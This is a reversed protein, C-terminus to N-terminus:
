VLLCRIELGNFYVKVKRLACTAQVVSLDILLMTLNIRAIFDRGFLVVLSSQHLVHGLCDVQHKPHGPPCEHFM